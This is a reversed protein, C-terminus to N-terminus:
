EDGTGPSRDTKDLKARAQRQESLFWKEFDERFELRLGLAKAREVNEKYLSFTQQSVMFVVKGGRDKGVLRAM